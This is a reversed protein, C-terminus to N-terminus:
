GSYFRSSGIAVANLSLQQYGNSASPEQAPLANNELCQLLGNKFLTQYKEVQNQLARPDTM